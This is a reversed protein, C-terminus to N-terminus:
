ISYNLIEYKEINYSQVLQIINLPKLKIKSNEQEVTKVIIWLLDKVLNKKFHNGIM